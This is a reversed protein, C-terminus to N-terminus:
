VTDLGTIINMLTTKGAGSEGMIAARDGASLSWALNHGVHIEDERDRFSKDIHNVVFM